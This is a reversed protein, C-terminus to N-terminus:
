TPPPSGWWIRANRFGRTGCDVYTLVSFKTSYVGVVSMSTSEWFSALELQNSREGFADNIEKISQSSPSLDTVFRSESFSINLLTKLLNALNAGRHPTGLFSIAVTNQTVRNYREISHAM